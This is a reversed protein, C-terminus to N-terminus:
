RLHPKNWRNFSVGKKEPTRRYLLDYTLHIGFETPGLYLMKHNRKKFLDARQYWEYYYLGNKEGSIPNGWVYPDYKTYLAGGAATIEFRWRSSRCLPITYGVQIGGGVHEGEWGTKEDLGIGYRGINAYAGIFFGQFYDAVQPFAKADKPTVKHRRTYMRVGLNYDHIQWFRQEDYHEWDPYTLSANYTFRGSKPYYELQINPSFAMGYRPYYFFDYFLNTRVALVHKRPTRVYQLEFPEIYETVTDVPLNKSIFNTVPTGRKTLRSPIAPVPKPTFYLMVRAYRIAPYYEKLLRQWLKGNRAAMLERKVTVRNGKHRGIVSKVYPYDPDNKEKMMFLLAKYDEPNDVVSSDVLEYDVHFIDQLTKVLSQSRKQALFNNWKIPGEPSSAGRMEIYKLEWDNKDIMPYVNRRLENFWPHTKPLQYINVPFVIGRAKDYFLSDAIADPRKEDRPLVVVYPYKKELMSAFDKMSDQALSTQSVLLVLLLSITRLYTRLAGLM